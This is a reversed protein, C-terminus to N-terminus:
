RSTSGGVPRCHRRQEASRVSHRHPRRSPRVARVRVAAPPLLPSIGSNSHAPRGPGSAAGFTFHAAQPASQPQPSFGAFANRQPQHAPVQRQPQQTTHIQAPLRGAAADMAADVSPASAQLPRRYVHTFVFVRM